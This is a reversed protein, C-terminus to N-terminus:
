ELMAMIENLHDRRDKLNDRFSKLDTDAIEVSLDSLVLRLTERLADRQEQSLELTEM